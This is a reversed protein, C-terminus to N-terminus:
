LYIFLTALSVADKASQSRTSAAFDGLAGAFADALAREELQLAAISLKVAEDFWSLSNWFAAGGARAVARCPESM